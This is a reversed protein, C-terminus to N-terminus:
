NGTKQQEEKKRKEQKKFYGRLLFNHKLAEMNENFAATGKEINSLSNNLKIVFTSDKLLAHAPGKGSRIDQKLEDTLGALENALIGAYEGVQKIKLVAENLNTAIATDTLIAGLSGKGNKVDNIVAHLDNVMKDATATAKRINFMSMRLNEPISADNLLKWFATSSNIRRVTSKLEESVEAINRNTKDLTELMEDTNVSKKISLIDGDEALPSGDKAPIINLIHNGMLGDTSMSVIDTKHIYKKMKEDILMSIEILTDSLIRVRKVTGVQIGSYRVNNGRTLGHVNDVRVKLIYNRGFMNTDRGIMYLAFIMIALGALVFIGLKLNNIAKTAM